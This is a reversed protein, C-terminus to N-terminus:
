DFRCGSPCLVGADDVCPELNRICSGKMALVEVQDREKVAQMVHGIWYAGHLVGQALLGCERPELGPRWYSISRRKRQAVCPRSGAIAKRRHLSFDCM